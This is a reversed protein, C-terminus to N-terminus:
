LIFRKLLHAIKKFGLVFGLCSGVGVGLGLGLVKLTVSIIHSQHSERMVAESYDIDSRFTVMTYLPLWSGRLLWSRALLEDVKKRILYGPRTVKDRMEHYNQLALNCIAVLDKHRTSSYKSLLQSLDKGPGQIKFHKFLENLKRVDELGCNMGQGYFPVMSHAADGIILAKDEYHYPKCKVSLLNGRPNEVFSRILSERGMLELADPFHKKFFDVIRDEEDQNKPPTLHEFIGREPAFLTCTFSKDKNPLAILMFSHRPWIHLHNPDLLYISEGTRPDKGPPISLELYLDDIYEQSFDVRSARMIQDRVKSYSGDAGITLSSQVEVIDLSELDQFTLISQDFDAKILKHNFYVNVNPKKCAELLITRNLLNRDISNIHEKNLGYTQSNLKGEVNHIMRARMPIAQELLKEVMGPDVSRVAEIGRSSFALNISRARVESMASARFDPRSEYVSVSWGHSELMCAALCGVPGAGVIVARPRGSM